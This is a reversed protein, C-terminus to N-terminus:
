RVDFNLTLSPFTSGLIALRQATPRQKVEQLYFISYPNRRGYVNFVSITWSTNLKRNRKYGRGITYAVDLRHYDPIRWQNRLSYDPVTLGNSLTYSGVPITNPRGSRFNFNIALSNRQNFQFNLIISADHPRDFNAPYWAGDNIGQIQREVRSYTYSIFGNVAGENKRISLEAGYARGTGSLLETEIHDNLTIDAFDKYDFIEDMDRYYVEISTEWKNQNFNQFYGISYNHSRQPAINSTSLQWIQVPTPSDTNSIQNIFQATRSYGMKISSQSGLSLNASIRPEFSSYTEIVENDGFSLTDVINELRIPAGEQYTLHTGPGLYQYLAYRIGTSISFLDGLKWESQVFAASEIGQEQELADPIVLSLEGSPEIKGPDVQYLISSIGLDLQLKDSATWSLQNKLKLHNINNNLKSAESGELEEQQSEYTGYVASFRNSTRDNFLSTYSLQFNRTAYEFGFDNAYSFDDEAAYASLTIKNKPNFNHTLRFNFDYFFVSSEQLEPINIRQLIWDSYSSRIGTIFTTKGKNLPGEMSLRGSVPSIGGKLRFKDSRGDRIQVDLVSALRGGYSAPINGKYLSVNGLIDTNFTSFFGLAHSANFIFAEDQLILNQDTNGGRVNFGSTGEGVSSVGPQLLIAQFVDSEGLFAPLKNLDGVEIATVGIQTNSVNADEAEAELVVEDLTLTEKLINLNLSGDSLAKIEKILGEYGLRSIRIEHLGIPVEFSFNGNEDTIVGLNLQPLRLTAGSVASGDDGDILQGNVKVSGTASLNKIDGIQIASATNAQEIDIGNAREVWVQYYEKSYDNDLFRADAIIIAYDRYNNFGLPTESLIRNLATNLPISDLEQTITSSALDAKRYYFQIPYREQLDKLVNELPANNYSGEVFIANQQQAFLTTFSLLIFFFCWICYRIGSHFSYITAM